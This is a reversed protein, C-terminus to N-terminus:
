SMRELKFEQCFLRVQGSQVIRRITTVDNIGWVSTREIGCKLDKKKACYQFILYLVQLM